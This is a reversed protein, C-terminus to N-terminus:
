PQDWWVPLAVYDPANGGLRAIENPNYLVETAGPLLRRPFRVGAPSTPTAATVLATNVNSPARLNVYIAPSFDFRRMDSWSEPNLFMAIYKQEMINKLELAAANQPVAASALYATIQAETIPPYTVTTITTNTGGTGIKRMHARIGEQFATFARTRNGARFAAEAEIFKLEHYTILEFYGLDRAYWSAYFDTLQSGPALNATTATGVGPDAGTSTATAMIPLRPDVVGFTRGDLYKILNASFTATAFNNRTTGFINTTNTLPAVAVQFQLQADDATAKFGQDVLALIANPDYSAKKTLHHNQRAKLSYALRIWKGVDGRYLIDGSISPSTLYLPRFNASAPKSMETIGEDLLQNINAYIQEQSDYKPTYNRAGLFAESYPIDGFMDTAHSLLLALMIKGAGVYYVSGEAQAAAIMPPINGGSQFYTFNFTNTSQANTYFFGDVANNAARSVLYQTIFPTRLATFMQTQAGNAIISPLLFNPTATTPNNPDTNVDLFDECATLLGGGLVLGLMLILKKM